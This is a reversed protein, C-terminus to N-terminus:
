LAPRRYSFVSPRPAAGIRRSRRDPTSLTLTDLRHGFADEHLSAGWGMREMIRMAIQM